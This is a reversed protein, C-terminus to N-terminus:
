SSDGMLCLGGDSEDTFHIDLTVVSPKVVNVSGCGQCEILIKPPRHADTQTYVKMQDSGCGGCSMKKANEVM